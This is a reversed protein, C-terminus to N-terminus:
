RKKKMKLPAILTTRTGRGDRSRIEMHGGLQDLREKISFLGFGKNKEKSSHHNAEIFGVGKDEVCIMINTDNKEISVNAKDIQAHKAVNTLLERVAQYLFIKVDEDLPKEQKDDKFSVAINYQAYTHEALWELATELGFQYLIPPSLEFTLSRTKDIAHILSNSLDSLIKIDEDSSLSDKLQELKIKIAFLEQGVQDHLYDALRKREKEESLTIQSTLARLQKQYDALKQEAMKRESIDRIMATAIIKKGIDYVFYSAEFTIQRGDKRLGTGEFIKNDLHSSIGSKAFEKAARKQKGRKDQVILLYAPKGLMEERSYGFMEEASKNFGIIIGEKNMSVIADKSYEILHYYKNESKKLAEEAHKRDTIDWFIGLIGVVNGKDNKVPTKVTHVVVEKGDQLYREEITEALGSKMIRKDDARYKKALEVPYFDLDTKGTIEDPNIKLDRAYNNNCSVYVSHKDKFFIKQPLNEILTKYKNRGNRLIEESDNIDAKSADLEAIRKKLKKIEAMLQKKTKYEDKM